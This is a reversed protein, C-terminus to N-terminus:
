NLDLEARVTMYDESHSLHFGLKKCVHWMAFNDSHLHGSIRDLKQDRGIQILRRLLETGLGCGQVKDAILIGFEAQDKSDLRTLRGIGLIM